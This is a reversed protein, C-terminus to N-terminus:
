PLKVQLSGNFAGGTFTGTVNLTVTTGSSGASSPFSLSASGTKGQAISRLNVPLTTSTATTRLTAQTITVDSATRHGKNQLSVKATYSGASTKTLKASALKLTTFVISFPEGNSATGSGNSVTVNATGANAILSAPVTATLKTGSVYTTALATTTTGQMWSVSANTAFLNGMLTLTFAPSAANTSGPSVSTLVPAIDVSFLTGLGYDGGEFTTGYLTGANTQILSALAEAGDTNIGRRGRASFVHLTTLTGDTTIRFITGNNYRSGASTTGYLNGDSAQILGAYPNAGDAKGTFSYLTTLTGGTTIRFVTGAGNAGGGATTGYLNGDGAQILGAYPNAGDAKGTFSYLTTLTGGTTIRFVTGAGNAGGGATTGYLNGDDAQILGSRPTDGDTGGTFRYLTTFTGGTTIKFVTGNASTTGYLNGDNAQILSATSWAGDTGAFSYLTTLAGDTTIRFVTGNDYAGGQWTTGYLNGDSAQILAAQPWKGDTLGMFSYLTTLTGDTTIRFVTGFSNSQLTDSLASTTGYLNGDSALVPSACPNAGDPGNFSFLPNLTQAHSTRPLAFLCVAILSLTLLGPLWRLPGVFPKANM